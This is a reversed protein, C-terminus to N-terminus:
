QLPAFRLNAIEGNADLVLVESWEGNDFHIRYVYETLGGGIDRKVMPLFSIPDGLSGLQYSLRKVIDPTLFANMQADLHSRDITGMQLHRLWDRAWGEVIADSPLAPAAAPATPSPSPAAAVAALPLSLAVLAWVLM